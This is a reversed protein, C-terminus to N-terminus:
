VQPYEFNLLTQYVRVRRKTVPLLFSPLFRIYVLLFLFLSKGDADLIYSCTVFNLMIRLKRTCSGKMREAISKRRSEGEFESGPSCVERLRGLLDDEGVALDDITCYLVSVTVEYSHQLNLHWNIYVEIISTRFM